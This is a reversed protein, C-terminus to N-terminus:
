AVSFEEGSLESFSNQEFISELFLSCTSRTVLRPPIDSTNTKMRAIRSFTVNRLPKQDDCIKPTIDSRTRMLKGQSTQSTVVTPEVKTLRPSASDARTPLAFTVRRCSSSRPRNEMVSKVITHEQSKKPRIPACLGAVSKNGASSAKAEGSDWRSLSKRKTAPVRPSAAAARCDSGLPVTSVDGSLDYSQSRSSYRYPGVSTNDSRPKANDNVLIVGQECIDNQAALLSQVFSDLSLTREPPPLLPPRTCLFRNNRKSNCM